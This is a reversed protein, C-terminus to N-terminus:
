KGFHMRLSSISLRVHRNCIMKTTKQPMSQPGGTIPHIKPVTQRSFWEWCVDRRDTTQMRRPKPQHTPWDATSNRDIGARGQPSSSCRLREVASMGSVLLLFFPLKNRIRGATATIERASWACTCCTAASSLVLSEESLWRGRRRQAEVPPPHREWNAQTPKAM